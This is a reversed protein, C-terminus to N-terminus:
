DYLLFPECRYLHCYETEESHKTSAMKKRSLFRFVLLFNYIKLTYPIMIKQCFCCQSILCNSHFLFTIEVRDERVLISDVYEDVMDQRIGIAILEGFYHLVTFIQLLTNHVFTKASFGDESFRFLNM